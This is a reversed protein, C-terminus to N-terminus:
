TTSDAVPRLELVLIRHLGLVYALAPMVLLAGIVGAITLLTSTLLPASLWLFLALVASYLLCQYVYERPFSAPLSRLAVPLLTAALFLHVVTSTEIAGVFGSLPVLYLNLGVSLVVAIVMRSVLSKWEHKTLLTYFSFLVLGNLFMPASLMMLATDAGAHDATALYADTTLLRMIPTSWLLSFLAATSGLLLIILLTKGLLSSTDQGRDHKEALVPLTSNLLFTPILYTMESIRSAFGYAANQLQYDDRLLSIMTLDFQRYLAICLFAVGYPMAKRLLRMLIEKEFCLRIRMLRVAFIVSLIFLLIAGASGVWLFYEYVRLDDSLRIGMFIIVAMLGATLIRQTVEAIFVLHMKYKVQFVTRLVGALLTFFPVLSAIAIGIRLPSGVWAPVLWAIIIATLLSLTAIISRLVILAGLIKEPHKSSSVERVSVAYLGFDALIAFLQLYGYASNYAGALEQSLGLAVFKVSITSLLAMTIQSGVQWLTSTAIARNSM